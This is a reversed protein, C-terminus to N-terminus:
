GPTGAIARDIRDLTRRLTRLPRSVDRQFRQSYLWDIERLVTARRREWEALQAQRETRHVRATIFDQEEVSVAEPERALAKAPDEVYGREPRRALLRVPERTV